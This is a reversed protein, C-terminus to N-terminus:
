GLKIFSCIYCVFIGCFRSSNLIQNESSFSSRKTAASSNPKKKHFNKGVSEVMVSEKQDLFEVRSVPVRPTSVFPKNEGLNFIAGRSGMEEEGAQSNPDMGEDFNFSNNIEPAFRTPLPNNNEIRERVWEAAAKPKVPDNWDLKDCYSTNRRLQDMDMTPISAANEWGHVKNFRTRSLDGKFGATDELVKVMENFVPESYNSTRGKADAMRANHFLRFNKTFRELSFKTIPIAKAKLLELVALNKEKTSGVGGSIKEFKIKNHEVMATDGQARALWESAFHKPNYREDM